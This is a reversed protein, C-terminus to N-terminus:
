VLSCVRVKDALETGGILNGQANEYRDAWREYYDPDIIRTCVLLTRLGKTSFFHLNDNVRTLLDKSTDGSLRQLMMADAGKCFLKITGDPCRVIVSMRQRESSFEMVYLTEYTVTRGFISLTTETSSRSIYEFGVTRACEVLAVEDPSPGQVGRVLMSRPRTALVQACLLCFCTARSLLVGCLSLHLPWPHRAGPVHCRRRRPRRSARPLARPEALLRRRPVAPLPRRARGAVGQPRRAPQGQPAPHRCPQGRVAADAGMKGLRGQSGARVMTVTENNCGSGFIQYRAHRCGSPRHLLQCCWSLSSVYKFCSQHARCRRVQMAEYMPASFFKLADMGQLGPQEELNRNLDGMPQGKIACLRLRMENSTLTGTKDSFIYDIKGLDENLNSNRCKAAEGGRERMEPDLNIFVFGQWFKVIELTVFLSVPVLYSYLIWFTIFVLLTYVFGNKNNGVDYRDFALHYRQFGQVCIRTDGGTLM